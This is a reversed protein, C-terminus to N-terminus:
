HLRQLKKADDYSPSDYYYDGDQYDAVHAVRQFTKGDKGPHQYRSFGMRGKGPEDKGRPERKHVSGLQEMLAKNVEEFETSNGTSTLIM